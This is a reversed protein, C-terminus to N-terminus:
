SKVAGLQFINILQRVPFAAFEPMEALELPTLADAYLACQEAAETCRCVNKTVLAPFLACALAARYYKTRNRIGASHVRGRGRSCVIPPKM